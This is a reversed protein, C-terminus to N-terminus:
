VRGGRDIPYLADLVEGVVYLSGTVLIIDNKDSSDLANRVAVAVHPNSHVPVGPNLTEMLKSPAVARPNDASTFTVEDVLNHLTDYVGKIDKDSSIGFILHLRRNGKIKEVYQRVAYAASPNCAGDVIIDPKRHVFQLRGPWHVNQIGKVIQENSVHFGNDSLLFASGIALAANSAQHEGPLPLWLDKFNGLVGEFDFGVGDYTTRVSHICFERGLVYIKSGTDHAVGRLFVEEEPGLSASVVPVGDKIIGAKERLIELRTKGLKHTHDIDVMTIVTLLPDLINTADLRGGMGTEVIAIDVNCSNFYQFALATWVEFFSLGEIDPTITKLNEVERVVEKETIMEGMIRIRERFSVLHPSSYFGVRYGCLRLISELVACTTGKGNTGAVHVSPFYNEPHGLRSVLALMRELNFMEDPDHTVRLKEYDIFGYLYKLADEFGQEAAKEIFVQSPLRM